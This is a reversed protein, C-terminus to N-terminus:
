VRFVQMLQTGLGLVNEASNGMENFLQAELSSIFKGDAIIYSNACYINIDCRQTREALAVCEKLAVVVHLLFVHM